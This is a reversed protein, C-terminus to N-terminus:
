KGARAKVLPLWADVADRRGALVQIIKPLKGAAVGSTWERPVSRSILALKEDSLDKLATQFPELDPGPRGFKRRFVHRDVIEPVADREPSPAGLVPLWFSVFAQEHDFVLFDSRNALLNPNNTQRDPNHTFADFGLVSAAVHRQTTSLPLNKSYQTYDDPHYQSGFVLGVSAALDKRLGDDQVGSVFEQDIRVQHPEPTTLGFYLALASSVWECLYEVPPMKLRNVPKIVCEVPPADPDSARATVLIPQSRGAEIRRNALEAHLETPNTILPSVPEM